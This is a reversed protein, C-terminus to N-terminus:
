GNKLLKQNSKGQAQQSSFACFKDRISVVEYTGEDSASIIMSYDHSIGNKTELVIPKQGKVPTTSRTYSTKIDAHDVRSKVPPM